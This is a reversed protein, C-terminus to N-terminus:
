RRGASLAWRYAALTQRATEEWSFTSAHDLGKQALEARLGPNRVLAILADALAEVDGPPVVLGGPGAVEELSSGGGVVAPTACSLAELVPLGFGEYYSPFVFTLAGAYLSPKDEEDVWGTYYVRDEVGQARALRRPDPTFTSDSDPLKGAIVLAVDDLERRAQGFAGLLGRLNKRLDFRGLYLLYRAPVRLRRLIPEREEPALPRYRADAALHIVRIRGPPIGLLDQIDRASSHSDTLVLTARRVGASVLRMYARVWRSGRYEPLRLPIVDHVTVVTPVSPFLPPAFYPVHAIDCEARGCARPFAVQEFWLKALNRASGDFPTSLSRRTVPPEPDGDLRGLYRPVLLVLEEQPALSVLARLLHHLYQGSGTAEFGWFAGNIGVKM